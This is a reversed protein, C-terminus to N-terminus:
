QALEQKAASMLKDFGHMAIRREAETYKSVMAISNFFRRCDILANLDEEVAKKDSYELEEDLQTNIGGRTKSFIVSEGKLLKKAADAYDIAKDANVGKTYEKHQKVFLYLQYCLFLLAVLAIIKEM